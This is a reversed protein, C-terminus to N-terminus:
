FPESINDGYAGGELRPKVRRWKEDVDANLENFIRISPLDLWKHGLPDSTNVRRKREFNKRKTMRRFPDPLTSLTQAGCVLKADAVDAEAGLSFSRRVDAVDPNPRNSENGARSCHRYLRRKDGIESMWSSRFLRCSTLTDLWDSKPPMYRSFNSHAGRISSIRVTRLILSCDFLSTMPQFSLAEGNNSTAGFEKPGSEILKM